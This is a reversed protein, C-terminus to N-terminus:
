LKKLVEIYKAYQQEGQMLYDPFNRKLISTSFQM